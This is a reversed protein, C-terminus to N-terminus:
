ANSNVFSSTAGCGIISFTNDYNLIFVEALIPQLKKIICLFNIAAKLTEIDDSAGM